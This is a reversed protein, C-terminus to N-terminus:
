ATGDIKRPIGPEPQASAGTQRRPSESVIAVTGPGFIRDERSAPAIRCGHLTRGRGLGGECLQVYLRELREFRPRYDQRAVRMLLQALVRLGIERPARGLCAPDLLQMSGKARSAQEILMRCDAELADRARALHKAAGAIRMPLLGLKELAPWAARLRARVFRPESNMPDEIWNQGHARLFDRLAQRRMDLLPRVLCVGDRERSPFPAVIQMASLGDIGSGRALRLLFTEAQDELTHALYLGNVRRARCWAGMLHYRIDRAVAEINAKPKIGRWSLVHAELRAAHARREVERAAETSGDQLGHDVTLVIPPSRNQKRAWHALLLLLAMSDGGGSVGIAGPWPAGLHEAHAM